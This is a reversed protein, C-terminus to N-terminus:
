AFRFNAQGLDDINVNELVIYAESNAGNLDGVGFDLTKAGIYTNNGLQFFASGSASLPTPSQQGGRTMLYEFDDYRVAPNIGFRLEIVDSNVDFDKIVDISPVRQNLVTGTPRGLADLVEVTEFTAPQLSDTKTFVFTDRGANGYLTDNGKGGYITDDGADGYIVDKGDQGFITDNGRGGYVTDKGAGAEIFDKGVGGEIFDKGAGSKIT